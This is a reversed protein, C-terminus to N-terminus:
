QAATLATKAEPAAIVVGDMDGQVVLPLETDSYAKAGTLRLVYRDEPVYVFAFSGDEEVRATMKKERDDAYLLELQGRDLGHGDRLATAFGRITHLGNVPITIDVGSVPEGNGVKVAKASKRRFGDGTYIALASDRSSGVSISSREGSLLGGVQVAIMPLTVEMVYEGPSIGIVQYRGHDDTETDKGFLNAGEVLGIRADELTGDKKRHLLHMHM